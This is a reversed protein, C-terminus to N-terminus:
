AKEEGANTYIESVDPYDNLAEVLKEIDGKAKEDIPQPFKPLWDGEPSQEFLWQVSGQEAFRAGNDSLIKKLEAVTRNRSDTIATIVFATGKPGYAEILLEETPNDKARNIARDINDQPVSAEKAKTIATRLRPNFDPNPEEKAAVQIAALLKTFAKARKQDTIAKKHKIQAWKNHGAM